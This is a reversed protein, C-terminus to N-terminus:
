QKREALELGVVAPYQNWSGTSADTLLGVVAAAGAVNQIVVLGSMGLNAVTWPELEPHLVVSASEFGPKTCSILLDQNRRPVEIEGPSAALAERDVGGQNVSCNAGAPKTMISLKQSTGQKMTSCGSLLILSLVIRVKM